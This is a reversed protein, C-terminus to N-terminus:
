AHSYRWYLGKHTKQRGALCNSVCCRTYGQKTVAEISEFQHILSGKVNTCEVPKCIEMSHKPKGRQANGIRQKTIESRKMGLHAKGIKRCHDESLPKGLRAERIKQKAEESHKHGSPGDGGNSLNTLPGEGLNRRGIRKIDSMELDFAEKEELQDKVIKIDPNIGM